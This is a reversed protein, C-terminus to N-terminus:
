ELDREREREVLLESKESDSSVFSLARRIAPERYRQV